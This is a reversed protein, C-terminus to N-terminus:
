GWAHGLNLAKKLCIVLPWQQTRCACGDLEAGSCIIIYTSGQGVRGTRIEAAMLRAELAVSSHPSCARLGPYLPAQFLPIIGAVTVCAPSPTVSWVPFVPPIHTFPFATPTKRIKKKMKWNCSYLMTILCKCLKCHSWGSLDLIWRM